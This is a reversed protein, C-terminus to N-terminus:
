IWFFPDQGPEQDQEPDKCLAEAEQEIAQEELTKGKSLLGIDAKPDPPLLQYVELAPQPGGPHDMYDVVVTYQGPALDIEVTACTDATEPQACTDLITQGDLALRADEATDLAFRYPGPDNVTMLKYYQAPSAQGSKSVTATDDPAAAVLPDDPAQPKDPGEAGSLDDPDAFFSGSGPMGTLGDPDSADTFFGTDPAPASAAPQDTDITETPGSTLSDAIDPGPQPDQVPGPVTQAPLDPLPESQADAETQATDKAPDQVPDQMAQDQTPQDQTPQDQTPQDQPAPDDATQSADGPLLDPAPPGPPLDALGALDAAIGVNIRDFNELVLPHIGVPLADPLVPAGGFTAHYVIMASLFYTTETGHPATDVYLAQAPVDALVTTFLESLITAVPLLQLNADPDAANVQAVLASYWDSYAGLTYAHYDALAADPPPVEQSFPAMDAWGQYILIRAEPQATTLDGVIDLVADLPSRSDGFYDTDPALDQIFNAPAILVSDFQAAAFAQTQDDWATAVGPFGWQSLPEPRDAFDRLFGYAGNVAYSDGSAQAFLSMWVPVNTFAGGEAFNLLSNGFMYQNSSPMDTDSPFPAPFSAIRAPM